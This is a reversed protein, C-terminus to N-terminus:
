FGASRIKQLELVAEPADADAANEQAPKEQRQQRAVLLTVVAAGVALLGVNSLRITGGPTSPWHTGGASPPPLVRERLM